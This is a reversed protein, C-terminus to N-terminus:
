RTGGLRDAVFATVDLVTLGILEDIDLAALHQDLDAGYRDLLLARLTALEVSDMGLDGELRANPTIKGVWEDAQGTSEAIMESIEDLLRPDASQSTTPKAM